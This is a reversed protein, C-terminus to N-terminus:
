GAPESSWFLYRAWGRRSEDQRIRLWPIGSPKRPRRLLTMGAEAPTRNNKRRNCDACACVCNLWSDQGGRSRPRVHDVTNGPGGCYQCVHRDRVLVNKRTLPVEKFPRQIYYVMRIISPLDFRLSMSSVRSGRVAEVLEAKRKYLLKMARRITTVNLYEYSANLVLVTGSLRSM